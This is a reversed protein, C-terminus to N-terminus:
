GGKCATTRAHQRRRRLVREEKQRPAARANRKKMGFKFIASVSNQAPEVRRPLSAKKGVSSVSDDRFDPSTIGSDFRTLRDLEASRALETSHELPAVEPEGIGTTPCQLGM